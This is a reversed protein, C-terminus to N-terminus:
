RKTTASALTRFVSNGDEHTTKPYEQMLLTKPHDKSSYMPTYKAPFSGSFGLFRSPDFLCMRYESIKLGSRYTSIERPFFDHGADLGLLLEIKGGSVMQFNDTTAEEYGEAKRVEEVSANILEKYRQEERPPVFAIEDVVSAKIRIRTGERNSIEFEVIKGKAAGGIGKISSSEETNLVKIKGEHILDKHILTANSCNDFTTLIKKGDINTYALDFQAENNRRDEVVLLTTRKTEDFIEAPDQETNIQIEKRVLSLDDLVKESNSETDESVQMLFSMHQKVSQPKVRDAWEMCTRLLKHRETNFEYHDRCMTVHKECNKDTCM